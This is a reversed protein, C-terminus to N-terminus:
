SPERSASPLQLSFLALPLLVGVVANQVDLHGAFALWIVALTVGICIMSIVARQWRRSPRIASLCLTLIPGWSRGSSVTVVQPRWRVIATGPGYIRAIQLAVVARPVVTWVALQGDDREWWKEGRQVPQVWQSVADWLKTELGNPRVNLVALAVEADVDYVATVRHYGTGVHFDYTEQQFARPDPNWKVCIYKLGDAIAKDAGVSGVNALARVAFVTHVLTGSESPIPGWSGDARQVSQLWKVGGDVADPDPSELRGLALLSLATTYLRSPGGPTSGWGGDTSRSRELWEQARRIADGVGPGRAGVLAELTPATGEASPVGSVSLIHWGGADTGEAYQASLIAKIVEKETTADLGGYERFFRLPVASGPSGIRGPAFRGHWGSIRGGATNQRAIKNKLMEAADAALQSLDAIRLVRANGAM